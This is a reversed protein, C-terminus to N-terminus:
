KNINRRELEIDTKVRKSFIIIVSFFFISPPPPPFASDSCTIPATKLCCFHVQASLLVANDRTEGEWGLVSPSKERIFPPARATGYLFFAAARIYLWLGQKPTQPREKCLQHRSLILPSSSHHETTAARTTRSCFPTHLAPCAPSLEKQKQFTEERYSCHLM